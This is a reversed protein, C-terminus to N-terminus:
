NTISTKPFKGFLVMSTWIFSTIWAFLALSGYTNIRDEYPKLSQGTVIYTPVGDNNFTTLIYAAIRVGPKPQWTIKNQLHSLAFDLVGKPPVPTVGDLTASSGTVQYKDNIVIAFVNSDFATDTIHTPIAQIGSSKIQQALAIPQDNASLRTSQQVMTYSGGIIITFVGIITLWVRFYRHQIFRDFANKTKVM